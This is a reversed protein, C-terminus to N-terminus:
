GNKKYGTIKSRLQILEEKVLARYEDKTLGGSWDEKTGAETIYTKEVVQDVYENLSVEVNKYITELKKSIIDREYQEFTGNMRMTHEDSVVCDFCKKRLRYFKKDLRKKMRNGCEPCCMPTLSRAGSMKTINQKIGNKITWTKGREEWVDGEEYKEKTKTYGIQTATKAKYKGTILNRMRQVKAETIAKKM